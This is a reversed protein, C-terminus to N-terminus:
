SSPWAGKASSSEVAKKLEKEAVYQINKDITLIVECGEESHRVRRTEPTITRGRGDKSILIYGPEGRIFEDYGLEVGELGTSDVGSFGIVHCGMEGQPYFRKTEKLFDIGEMDLRSRRGSDPPSEEKWGSM